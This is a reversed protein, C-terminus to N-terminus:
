AWARQRSIEIILNEPIELKGMESLVEKDKVSNIAWELAAEPDYESWGIEIGNEIFDRGGERLSGPLPCQYWRSRQPLVPRISKYSFLCGLPIARPAPSAPPVRQDRCISRRM